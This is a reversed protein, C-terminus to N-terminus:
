RETWLGAHPTTSGSSYFLVRNDGYDAVYLNSNSDLAIGYPQYLTNASSPFGIGGGSSMLNPQGYVRTATTSGAPYFLVRNNGVEAVYLNGGSDVVIGFPLSLGNAGVGPANSTFSGRQGYVVTATTNVAQAHALHSNLPMVWLLVGALLAIPNSLNRLAIPM